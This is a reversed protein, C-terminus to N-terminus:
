KDKREFKEISVHVTNLYRGENGGQIYDEICENLILEREDEYSWLLRPFYKECYDILYDLADQENDANVIFEIGNRTLLIRYDNKWFNEEYDDINVYNIEM